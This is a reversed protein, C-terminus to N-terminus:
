SGQPHSQYTTGFRQSSIVVEQQTIGWYLMTSMGTVTHKDKFPLPLTKGSWVMFSYLALVCVAGNM